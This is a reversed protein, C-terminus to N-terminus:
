GRLARLRGSVDLLYPVGPQLVAAVAGPAAATLAHIFAQPDAPSNAFLGYHMPVTARAQLRAALAAAGAADMSGRGGDGSRSGDVAVFLVDPRQVAPALEVEPGLRTNGVLCLRWGAGHLAYGVAPPQRPNPNEGHLAPVAHVHVEGATVRDGWGVTRIREGPVPLDALISVSQPPGVYRPRCGAAEMAALTPLDAHIGHAHTLLVWDVQLDAPALPPPWLRPRGRDAWTDTLYPDVALSLGSPYTFLWSAHGLWVIGVEGDGPRPAISTNM